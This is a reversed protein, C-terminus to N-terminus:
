LLFSITDEDSYEMDGKHINLLENNDSNVWKTKKIKKTM